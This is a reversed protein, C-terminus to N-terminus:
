QASPQRESVKSMKVAGTHSAEGNISVPTRVQISLDLSVQSARM